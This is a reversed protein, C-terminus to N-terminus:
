NKKLDRRLAELEGDVAARDKPVLAGAVPRSAPSSMQQKLKALDDDVNGSELAKFTQELGDGGSLIQASEGEAEMAMVKQEMKEFAALSSSTDMGSVMESVQKQTKASAARAKLTDKKSKAEALKGELQRVNGILNNMAKEQAELQLKLGNAVDEFSKKRSLAERALDEEGKKLALEARRYWEEATNKATNYKTELQKQSAMVQASAQRMKVLDGQMDAVAQDLIKEPDELTNLVSNTYSRFLRGIRSLIGANVVVYRPRRSEDNMRLSYPSRYMKMDGISGMRCRALKNSSSTIPSSLIHRGHVSSAEGTTRILVLAVLAGIAVTMLLSLPSFGLRTSM